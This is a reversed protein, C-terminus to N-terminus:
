DTQKPSPSVVFKRMIFEQVIAFINMVTWYLTLAAPFTRSWLLILIPFVYLAQTNMMSAFNNEQKPQAATSLKTQFYQTVAAVVGLYINGKALDLFGFAQANIVEPRTVFSYLYSLQSMDFGHKFVQLLAIFLPIQVLLILCGSFPNVRNKAYLEMLAKGQGEKDDKYKEQMKKVEPQLSAMKKQEQQSKWLMPAMITRIIFTLIIIALGFDQVPLTTYLFILANFLPRWLLETYLYSIGSM